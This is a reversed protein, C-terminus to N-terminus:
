IIMLTLTTYLIVFLRM